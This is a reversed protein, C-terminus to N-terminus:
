QSLIVIVRAGTWIVAGVKSSCFGGAVFHAHPVDELTNFLCVKDFM